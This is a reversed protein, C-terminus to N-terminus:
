PIPSPVCARCSERGMGCCGCAYYPGCTCVSQCAFMFLFRKHGSLSISECVFRSCMCLVFVHLAGSPESSARIHPESRSGGPGVRVHSEPGEMLVRLAVCLWLASGCMRLM